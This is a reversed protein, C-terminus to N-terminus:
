RDPRQPPSSRASGEDNTWDWPVEVTNTSGDTYRVEVFRGNVYTIGESMVEHPPLGITGVSGSIMTQEGACAMCSGPLDDSSLWPDDEYSHGERGVRWTQPEFNQDCRNCSAM